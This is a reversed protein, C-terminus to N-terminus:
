AGHITTGDNKTICKTFPACNNSATQTAQNYGNITINDGVLIYANNYYDCLNSKLLKTSCIIKNGSAFNIIVNLSDLSINQIPNQEKEANFVNKCWWRRIKM